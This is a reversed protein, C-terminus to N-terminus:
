LLNPHDIGITVVRNVLLCLKNVIFHGNRMQVYENSSM